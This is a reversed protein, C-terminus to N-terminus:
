VRARECKEANWSIHIHIVTKKKKKKGIGTYVFEIAYIADPAGATVAAHSM